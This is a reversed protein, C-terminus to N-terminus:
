FRRCRWLLSRSAGLSRGNWFRNSVHLAIDPAFGPAPSDPHPGSSGEIGLQEHETHVGLHSRNKSGANEEPGTSLKRKSLHSVKDSQVEFTHVPKGPRCLLPIPGRINARPRREGENVLIELRASVDVEAVEIEIGAEIDQESHL